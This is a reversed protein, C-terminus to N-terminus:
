PLQNNVKILEEKTVSFNMFELLKLLDILDMSLADDMLDLIQM